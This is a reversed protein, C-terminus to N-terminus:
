VWDFQTPATATCTNGSRRRYFTTITEKGEKYGFYKKSYARVSKINPIAIM